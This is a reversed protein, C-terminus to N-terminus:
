RPQTIGFSKRLHPWYKRTYVYFSVSNIVLAVGELVYLLTTGPFTNRMGEHYYILCILPFNLATRLKGSWNAGLNVDGCSAGVARLFSVWQDRLLLSVTLCLLVVAHTIHDNRTALFVLLPLTALYFVKDSLPDASAGLKTTVGLKRACYGDLLDSVAAAILCAFAAHLLWPHTRNGVSDVLAGAFFLFVLPIRVCTLFTVLYLRHSLNM